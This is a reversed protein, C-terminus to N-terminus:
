QIPWNPITEDISQMLKITEQLAVIIRQYHQIDNDNLTRGKRDKLWKQCVQYGGIYFNWVAEPVGVFKDGKKNIVVTSQTYKPHAPDVIGHGGNETFQTILNNLRPSKMLHLAVLEEGYKALQSFLNKDSTIPVRPFDIKLFEAYRTRYTPSHFIAYIYYFITEPTPLYGLNIEIKKLFDESFNARKEQQLEKPNNKDPYLYLPFVQNGERSTTSIVCSEVVERSVWCHRYGVTSQQRSSLLCLNDKSAVHNILERRPYDMAVASFYCERWDFPRYLCNILKDEWTPDNRVMQRAEKLKWDRNDKIQYKTYYEEDSINENRMEAIRKYIEEKEFHIAFDDRHTQFGLVNVPMVDTIKFYHEYETFLDTDQPILLYPLFYYSPHRPNLLVNM